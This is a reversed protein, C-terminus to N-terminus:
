KKPPAYPDNEFPDKKTQGTSADPSPPTVAPAMPVPLLQSVEEAKVAPVVPAPLEVGPHDVALAGYKPKGDATVWRADVKPKAEVETVVAVATPIIAEASTTPKTPAPPGHYTVLDGDPAQPAAHRTVSHGAVPHGAVPPTAAPTVPRHPMTAPVGAGGRGLGVPSAILLRRAEASAVPMCLIAYNAAVIQTSSTFDRRSRTMAYSLVSFLLGFGAGILVSIFGVGTAVGAGGFLSMLLGVFLGFWAGSMAGAIAVRGYSLRGTVREVSTLNTGVITLSEVPFHQDALYAIAKQAEAYTPYSAIPDGTPATPVVKAFQQRGFSM